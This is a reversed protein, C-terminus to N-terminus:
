HGTVDQFLPMQAPGVPEQDSLECFLQNLPTVEFLTVSVVQLMEHLSAACRLRKKVIAVLVYATIATWIQIQVANESTGMFITIRLNQKICKFFLEIRWRAKYLQAIQSPEADFINTLLVLTKNNASDFVCVRRLVEPYGLKTYRGVLRVHDDATIGSGHEVPRPEIVEFQLDDYTRVVFFAACRTFRMLRAAHSYGRDMIYISGPELSIRDLFAADPSRSGTIDVVTPINGRLDLVTHVKVGARGKTAPAWDFLSLCLDVTSADVAYVTGDVRIDLGIDDAAFLVKAQEILHLAYDRFIRYDRAENANSLTSRAVNARFGARYLKASQSQLCTVVDRLSRRFTLQAFLMCLLQSWHPLSKTPRGRHYRKVCRAFESWSLFDTLQAFVLRDERMAVGSLSRLKARDRSEIVFDNENDAGSFDLLSLSKAVL